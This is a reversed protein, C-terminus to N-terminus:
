TVLFVTHILKQIKLCNKSMKTPLTLSCKIQFEPQFKLMFEQLNKIQIKVLSIKVFSFPTSLSFIKM